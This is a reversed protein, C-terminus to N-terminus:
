THPSVRAENNLFAITEEWKLIYVGAVPIYKMGYSRVFTEMIDIGWVDFLEIVITPTM